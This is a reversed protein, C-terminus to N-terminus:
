RGIQIDDFPTLPEDDDDWLPPHVEPSADNATQLPARAHHHRRRQAQRRAQATARVAQAERARL